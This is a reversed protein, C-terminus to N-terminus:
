LHCFASRTSYIFFLLLNECISIVSITSGFVTVLWFRENTLPPQEYYCHSLDVGQETITANATTELRNVDTVSGNDVFM